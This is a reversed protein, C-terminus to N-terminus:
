AQKRLDSDLNLHRFRAIPSPRLLRRTQSHRVYCGSNWQVSTLLSFLGIFLDTRFIVMAIAATAAVVTM